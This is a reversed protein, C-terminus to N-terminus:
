LVLNLLYATSITFSGLVTDLKLGGDFSMPFFGGTGRGTPDEQIEDLSATAIVEVGAFLYLRYLFSGGRYLPLHYEVGGGLLLDDYDNHESFNLEVARPLASRGIAFYTFDGIFFQNFFPTQGQLLGAVGKLVLSHGLFPEFAVSGSSFYKSFEYDSGILRTGLEVGVTFDYGSLPVFGDDRTDLEYQLRFTSLVSDDFLISPAARLLPPDLNPLRDANIAELRYILSVRQAPGVGFGLGLTGGFREYTLQTGQPDSSDLLEAGRLLIASASLQLRTNALSPVFTRLRVGQREEGVAFDGGVTVGEGLFNTEVVGLGAFIPTVDSWGFFIEDVRLTNREEVEVVLLVLGRRSGRELGFDVRAFFGTGLLRLRSEQIKRDEVLDGEKLLLRRRIVRENTKSNGRIEIAEILQAPPQRALSPPAVTSTVTQALVPTAGGAVLFLLLGIAAAPRQGGGGAEAM